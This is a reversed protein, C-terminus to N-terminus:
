TGVTAPSISFAEGEWKAVVYEVFGDIPEPACITALEEGAQTLSVYGATFQPRNPQDATLVFRQCHYSVEAPNTDLTLEFGASEFRFLGSEELHSM